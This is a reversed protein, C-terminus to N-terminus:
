VEVKRQGAVGIVEVTGQLYELGASEMAYVTVRSLGMAVHVETITQAPIGEWLGWRRLLVEEVRPPLEGLLRVAVRLLEDQAASEDPPIAATDELEAEITTVEDGAKDIRPASLSITAQMARLAQLILARRAPAVDTMLVNGHQVKQARYLSYETVVVANGLQAVARQLAQRIWWSAHTTFRGLAPRFTEAARILGINGEGLLDAYELGRWKFAKAKDMVLRLNRVVLEDRASKDGRMAALGLAAEEGATLLRPGVTVLIDDQYLDVPDM